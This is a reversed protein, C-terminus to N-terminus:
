PSEGAAVAQEAYRIAKDLASLVEDQTRGKVDNWDAYRFDYSWNNAAKLVQKIDFYRISEPAERAARILAGDLCWKCANIATPDCATGDTSIAHCGQTWGKAVLDRARRFLSVLDM